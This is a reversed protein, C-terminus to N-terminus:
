GILGCRQLSYIQCNSKWIYSIKDWWCLFFIIVMTQYTYIVAFQKTPRYDSYAYTWSYDSLGELLTNMQAASNKVSLKACLLPGWIGHFCTFHLFHKDFQALIMLIIERKKKNLTWFYSLQHLNEFVNRMDEVKLLETILTHTHTLRTNGDEQILM